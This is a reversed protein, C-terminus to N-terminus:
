RPCVVPLQPRANRQKREARRCLVRLEALNEKADAYDPAISLAKRLAREAQDWAALDIRVAGLNNWTEASTGDLAAASAFAREAETARGLAYLVNGYNFWLGAEEPWTALLSEYIEAAPSLQGALELAIARDFSREYDTERASVVNERRWFSVTGEETTEDFDFLLQGHPEMLQGNASRSLIVGSSSLCSLQLLPENTGPLRVAIQRLSKALRRTTAGAKVLQALRRLAMVQRYDFSAVGGDTRAPTIWGRKMWQTLQRASVGVLKTVEALSYLRVVNSSEGQDKGANSIREKAM